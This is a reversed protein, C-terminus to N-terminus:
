PALDYRDVALGPLTNGVDGRDGLRGVASLDHLRSSHVTLTCARDTHPNKFELRWNM